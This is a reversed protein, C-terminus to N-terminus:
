CECVLMAGAVVGVRARVVAVRSLRDEAPVSVKRTQAFLQSFETACIIRFKFSGFVLM